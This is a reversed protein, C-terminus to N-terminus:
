KSIRKSKTTFISFNVKKSSSHITWNTAMDLWKSTQITVFQHWDLRAYNRPPAKGHHGAYMFNHTSLIADYPNRLTHVM